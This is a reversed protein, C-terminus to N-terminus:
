EYDLAMTHVYDILDFMIRRQDYDLDQGIKVVVIDPKLLGSSKKM